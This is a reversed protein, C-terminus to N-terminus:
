PHGSTLADDDARDDHGRDGLARDDRARDDRARDDLAGDDLDDLLEPDGVNTRWRAPRFRFVIL